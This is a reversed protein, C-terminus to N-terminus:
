CAPKNAAVNAADGSETRIPPVDLLKAHLGNNYAFGKGPADNRVM